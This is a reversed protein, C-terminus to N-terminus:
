HLDPALERPEAPAEREGQDRRALSRKDVIVVTMISSGDYNLKEKTAFRM